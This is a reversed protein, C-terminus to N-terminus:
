TRHRRLERLCSKGIRSCRQGSAGFTTRQRASSDGNAFTATYQVIMLAKRHIFATENPSLEMVAGGLADMSIGAETLAPSGNTVRSVM